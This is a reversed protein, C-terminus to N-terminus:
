GEIIEKFVDHNRTEGDRCYVAFEVNYFHGEFEELVEKYAAAVVEPPNRFAGCGFAGLVLSEVGHWAAVSLIARARSVHLSKLEDDPLSVGLCGDSLNYGNSPKERLNPAACTIVDVDFWEPLLRLDDDKIVIVGPTYIVADSHLPNKSARNPTYFEKWAEKSDLCPYLTSVRCLCEEQASAGKRVGGGPTTASAFNLVATLSGRYRAAAEFTRRRSVTTECKRGPSASVEPPRKYCRQGSISDRVRATLADSSDIRRITDDFALVRRERGSNNM